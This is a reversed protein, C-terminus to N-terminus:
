DLFLLSEAYVITKSSLNGPHTKLGFEKQISLSLLKEFLIKGTQM